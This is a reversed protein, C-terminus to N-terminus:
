YTPNHNEQIYLKAREFYPQGEELSRPERVSEPSFTGDGFGSDVIQFAYPEEGSDEVVDFNEDVAYTLESM